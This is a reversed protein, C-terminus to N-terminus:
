KFKSIYIQNYRAVLQEGEIKIFFTEYTASLKFKICDTQLSYTFESVESLWQRSELIRCGNWSCSEQVM